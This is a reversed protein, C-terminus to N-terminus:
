RGAWITRMGLEGREKEYNDVNLIESEDKLREQKGKPEQMWYFLLDEGNEM